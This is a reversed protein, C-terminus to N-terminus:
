CDGHLPAQPNEPFPEPQDPPLIYDIRLAQGDSLAMLVHFDGGILWTTLISSVEGLNDKLAAHIKNNMESEIKDAVTGDPLGSVDVSVGTNIWEPFIVLGVKHNM